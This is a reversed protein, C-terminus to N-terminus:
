VCASLLRRLLAVVKEPEDHLMRWTIRIVRWGEAVLANTRNRDDEFATSTDHWRRSDLEVLLKAWPFAVDVRGIWEDGGANLQRIGQPLGAADCLDRFVAELASAPPVYGPVREDVVLRMEASGPRGSRCLEAVTCALAPPKLGRSSDLWDVLRRLRQPHIQAALEFPLRADAVCPVGRVIQRHHDPLWFTEHLVATTSRHHGGRKVLLHVPRPPFGDAQVLWGASPGTVVSGPVDLVEALLDQLTTRPAAADALVRRGRREFRGSSVMTRRERPSVGIADLQRYTILGLQSRAREAIRGYTDPRMGSLM